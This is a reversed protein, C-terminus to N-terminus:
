LNRYNKCWTLGKVGVTAVHTCNCLMRHWVPNLRGDNSIKSM